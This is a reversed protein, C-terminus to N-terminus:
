FVVPSVGLPVDTTHSSATPQSAGSDRERGISATASAQPLLAARAQDALDHTGLRAADAAALVPDNARALRFVDLLDDAQAPRCAALACALVVVSRRMLDRMSRQRARRAAADPWGCRTRRTSSM